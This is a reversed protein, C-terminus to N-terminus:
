KNFLKFFRSMAYQNPDEFIEQEYGRWHGLTIQMLKKTPISITTPILKQLESCIEKGYYKIAFGIVAPSAHYVLNAVEIEYTYDPTTQIYREYQQVVALLFMEHFPDIRNSSYEFVSNIMIRNFSITSGLASSYNLFTDRWRRCVGQVKMSDPGLFDFVHKLVSITLPHPNSTDLPQLKNSDRVLRRDRKALLESNDPFQQYMMKDIRTSAARTRALALRNDRMTHHAIINAIQQQTAPLGFDNQFGVM